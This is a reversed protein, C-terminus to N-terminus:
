RLMTMAHPALCDLTTSAGANVRKAADRSHGQGVPLPLSGNRKQRHSPSPAALSRVKKVSVALPSSGRVRGEGRHPSPISDGKQDDASRFLTWAAATPGTAPCPASTATRPSRRPSGGIESPHVQHRTM